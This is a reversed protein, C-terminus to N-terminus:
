PEAGASRDTDDAVGHRHTWEEIDEVRVLLRNGDHRAALDGAEIALRMAKPQVHARAAADALRLEQASAAGALDHTPDPSRGDSRDGHDRSNPELTM